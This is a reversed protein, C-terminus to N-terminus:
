RSSSMSLFLPLGYAMACCTASWSLVSSIVYGAIYFGTQSVPAETWKQLIYQPFTIFFSYLATCILMVLINRPKAAQLYYSYLATDGTARSLDSSAEQVKLSRSQLTEEEAEPKATESDNRSHPAELLQLKNAYSM